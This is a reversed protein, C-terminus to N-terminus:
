KELEERITYMKQRAETISADLNRRHNAFIGAPSGDLVVLPKLTAAVLLSTSVEDFLTALVKREALSQAYERELARMCHGIVHAYGQAHYFLDDSEWPRLPRGDLENRYLGAHADGLLDSWTMFLRLLETHRQTIPKSTGLAPGLGRVYEDLDRVGQRYRSEASPIWLRREDNRFMLDAQVLNHDFADSSVKTLNDKMVRVTERVAQIIGLQRNANNDAWLAPGWLIFDNPRWGFGDRLEHDVIAALTTALVAGPPAPEGVPFTRALDLPLVDHRRQGLHLGVIALAWLVLMAVWRNLFLRKSM